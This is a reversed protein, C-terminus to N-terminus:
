RMRLPVLPAIPSLRSLWTEIDALCCPRLPSHPLPSFPYTSLSMFLLCAFFHLSFWGGSPIFMMMSKICGSCGQVNRFNIGGIGRHLCFSFTMFFLLLPLYHRTSILSPFTIGNSTHSRFRCTVARLSCDCGMGESCRCFGLIPANQLAPSTYQETREEQQQMVSCCFFVWPLLGRPRETM